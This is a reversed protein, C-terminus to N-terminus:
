AKKILANFSKTTPGYGETKREPIYTKVKQKIVNSEYPNTAFLASTQHVTRNNM